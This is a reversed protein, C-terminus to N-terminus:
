FAVQWRLAILNDINSGKASLGKEAFQPMSYDAEADRMMYDLSLKTGGAFGKGKLLYAVGVDTSTFGAKKGAEKTDYEQYRAKLVIAPTVKYGAQVYWTTPKRTTGTDVEVQQYEARAHVGGQEFQAYVAYGSAEKTGTLGEDLLDTAAYSAGVKLGKMPDVWANVAYGKESNNDGSINGKGNVYALQYGFGVPGKSEGKLQVGASRYATAGLEGILKSPGEPYMIMLMMAGSEPTALGFPLKWTGASLTALPHLKLDMWGQILKADDASPTVVKTTADQTYAGTPDMSLMAHYGVFDKVIDGSAALRARRWIFTNDATYNNNDDSSYYDFQILGSVNVDAASAATPAFLFAALIAGLALNRIHM